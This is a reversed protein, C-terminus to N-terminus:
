KVLQYREFHATDLRLYAPMGSVSEGTPGSPGFYIHDVASKETDVDLSQASIDHIDVFSEIGNPDASLNGELRNLFSPADTNNVYYKGYFHLSLNSLDNSDNFYGDYPSKYIQRPVRGEITFIPDEFGEIPIFASINQVKEWRALGEKDEMVFTTSLTFKVNWPDVQEITIVPNTMNIVVNIKSAKANISSTISDYTAGPLISEEPIENITGNFFAENFFDDVDIYNGDAIETESLFLIRFGSIFMQRELNSEISNLFNKMTDVRTQISNGKRASSYVEFSIFLLGIMVIALVTFIQARKNM